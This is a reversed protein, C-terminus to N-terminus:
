GFETFLQKKPIVQHAQALDICGGQNGMATLPIVFHDVATKSSCFVLKKPNTSLLAANAALFALLGLFVWLGEHGDHCGSSLNNEESM